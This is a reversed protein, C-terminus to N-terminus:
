SGGPAGRSEAVMVTGSSRAGVVVAFSPSGCMMTLPVVVEPSSRDLLQAEAILRDHRDGGVGVLALSEHARVDVDDDAVAASADQAVPTVSAVDSTRVRSSSRPLRWAASSARSSFGDIRSTIRTNSAWIASRRRVEDVVGDRERGRCERRRPEHGGRQLALAALLEREGRALEDDPERGVVVRGVDRGAAVEVVPSRDGHDVPVPRDLSSGAGPATVVPM